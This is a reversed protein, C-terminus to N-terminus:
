RKTINYQQIVFYDPWQYSKKMAPIHLRSENRKIPNIDPEYWIVYGALVGIDPIPMCIPLPHFKM